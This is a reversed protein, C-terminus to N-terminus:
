ASAALRDAPGSLYERVAAQLYIDLSRDVAKAVLADYAARPGGLQATELAGLYTLRDRPRIIAPPFGHILLLLNMLLRATRGNGDAASM